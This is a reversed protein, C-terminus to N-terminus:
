AAVVLDESADDDEPISEADVSEEKLEAEDKAKQKLVKIKARQKEGYAKFKAMQKQKETKQGSPHNDNSFDGGNKKFSSALPGLTASGGTDEIVPFESSMDRQSVHSESQLLVTDDFADAPIWKMWKPM